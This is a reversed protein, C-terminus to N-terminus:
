GAPTAAGGLIRATFSVAVMQEAAEDIDEATIALGGGRRLAAQASRRMLEKIFAASFGATRNVVREISEETVTARGAYLRALRRRGEDDPLPFEIAQDIRGPRSVLAAELHEPRNTSLVFIIEADERLGDMENLLQNLLSEECPNRMSERDRAILDVDEIVVLSPQLFRAMQLYQTLLGMQEATILFTTHSALSSALYRVTHTKGGGPPGFFLLGKKASMGAEKLQPRHAIFERINRDLLDLTAEPLIVDERRVPELAHVRVTGARGTYDDSKELSIIKGRYTRAQKLSAEVSAFFRNSLDLGEEGPLTALELTVGVVRGYLDTASLLVAAPLTGKRCFWIGVKLCRLPQIEGVHIQEYELPAIVAPHMEETVLKAFTAASHSYPQHFGLLEAQDFFGELVEDLVAQLDARATLPFERQSAVLDSLRAPQFHKAARAALTAAKPRHSPHLAFRFM